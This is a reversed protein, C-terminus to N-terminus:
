VNRTSSSGKSAGKSSTSPRNYSGQEQEGGFGMKGPIEGVMDKAGQWGDGVRKSIDERIQQGPKPAFLMGIGVGCLVGVAFIGVGPVIWDTVDRKKQLGLLELVDDSKWNKFDRFNMAKELNIDNIFDSIKLKM